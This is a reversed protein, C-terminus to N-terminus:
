ARLVIAMLRILHHDMASRRDFRVWRSLDTVVNLAAHTLVRAESASLEPRLDLLLRVWEEVHLRQM